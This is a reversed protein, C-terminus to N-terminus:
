DSPNICDERFLEKVNKNNYIIWRIFDSFTLRHLISADNLIMGGNRFTEIVDYYLQIVKHHLLTTRMENRIKLNMLESNEDLTGDDSDSDEKNRSM